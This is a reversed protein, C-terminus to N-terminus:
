VKLVGGVGVIDAGLGFVRWFDHIGHALDFRLHSIVYGIHERQADFNIWQSYLADLAALVPDENDKGSSASGSRSASVSSEINSSAVENGPSPFSSLTM